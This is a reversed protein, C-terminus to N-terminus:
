QTQFWNNKTPLGVHRIDDEFICATASIQELFHQCSFAQAAVFATVCEGKYESLIEKPDNGNSIEMELIRVGAKNLLDNQHMEMMLNHISELLGWHESAHWADSHVLGGIRSEMMQILEATHLYKANDVIALIELFLSFLKARKGYWLCIDSTETTLVNDTPIYITVTDQKRFEPNQYPLVCKIYDNLCIYFARNGKLDVVILLVPVAAGM